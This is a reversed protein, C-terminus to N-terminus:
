QSSNCFMVTLFSVETRDLEIWNFQTYTANYKFCQINEILYKELLHRSITIVALKFYMSRIWILTRVVVNGNKKRQSRTELPLIKFDLIHM